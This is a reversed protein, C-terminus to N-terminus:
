KAEFTTRALVEGHKRRLKVDVKHVGRAIPPTKVTLEYRYSIAREVKQMAYRPFLHTKVYMGGTDKAAKSLGVELSHYDADSIDLAFVSTRASDLAQRARAYDATMVVGTPTYRGLGWGFLFMTKPGPIQELARALVYLGKEPSGANKSGEESLYTKLAPSHVLPVSPPEDITLANRIAYELLRPEDTFDQHLKLRSDYSLVAVRDGPLLNQVFESAHTTMRMQGKARERQFDTQFLMVILRGRYTIQPEEANKDFVLPIETVPVADAAEVVAQKGDVKVEFDSAKLGEIPTGDDGIVHADVILREVTIQESFEQAALPPVILLFAALATRIM